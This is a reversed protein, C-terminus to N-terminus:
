EDDGRTFLGRLHPGFKAGLMGAVPGGAVYAIAQEYQKPLKKSRLSVNAVSIALQKKLAKAEVKLFALNREFAENEVVKFGSLDYQLSPDSTLAVIGGGGFHAMVPQATVGDCVPVMWDHKGAELSLFLATHVLSSTSLSLNQTQGPLLKEKGPYDFAVSLPLSEEGPERILHFSTMEKNCRYYDLQPYPANLRNNDTVKVLRWALDSGGLFRSAWPREPPQPREPELEVRNIHITRPSYLVRSRFEEALLEARKQHLLKQWWSSEVAFRLRVFEQEVPDIANIAGERASFAARPSTWEVEYGSTGLVASLGFFLHQGVRHGVEDFGATVGLNVLDAFAKTPPCEPWKFTLEWSKDQQVVFIDGGSVNIVAQTLRLLPYLATEQCFSSVRERVKKPDLTFASEGGVLKGEAM